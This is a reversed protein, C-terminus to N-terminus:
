ICLVLVFKKKLNDSIQQFPLRSSCFTLFQTVTAKLSNISAVLYFFYLVIFHLFNGEKEPASLIYCM